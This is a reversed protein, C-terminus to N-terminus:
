KNKNFYYTNALLIIILVYATLAMVPISIYDFEYVYRKLCSEFATCFISSTKTFYIFNHYVSVFFGIVLLFLSYPIINKDKKYLALGLIFVQPYLFIRQYWCLKCPDYGVIDSYYLSGLMATLSIIFGLLIGNRSLFGLIFNNKQNKNILFYPIILLVFLHSLLVLFGLTFSIFDTNM